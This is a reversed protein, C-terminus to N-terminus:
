DLYAKVTRPDCTILALIDKAKFFAFVAEETVDKEIMKRQDTDYEMGRSPFPVAFRAGGYQPIEVYDGPKFWAGAPWEIMKTTLAGGEDETTHMSKFCMDGVAIVKGIRTNYHEASRADQSLMIGGRTKRKAQRIQVLITYGLPARGPDVAPFAEDISGYEFEITNSNTVLSVAADAM